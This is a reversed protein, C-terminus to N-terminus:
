GGLNIDGSPLIFIHYVPLPTNEVYFGPNAPPVINWLSVIVLLWSM